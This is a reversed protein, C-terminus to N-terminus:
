ISLCEQVGQEDLGIKGLLHVADSVRALDGAERYGVILTHCRAKERAKWANFEAEMPTPVNVM